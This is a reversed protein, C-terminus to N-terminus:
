SLPGKLHYWFSEPLHQRQLIKEGNKACKVSEFIVNRLEDINGPWNYQRLFNLVDASAITVSKKLVKSYLKLFVSVLSPINDPRQKLPTLSLNYISIRYFFEKLLLKRESIDSLNFRSGVILRIPQVDDGAEKAAPKRQIMKYLRKQVAYSLITIETLFLTGGFAQQVKATRRIRTNPNQKEEERGFLYFELFSPPIAETNVSIFPGNRLTSHSHIYRAWYEKGTGKPGTIFVPTKYTLIRNLNRSFLRKKLEERDNLPFILPVKGKPYFVDLNEILIQHWHSDMSHVNM